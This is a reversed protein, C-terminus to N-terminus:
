FGEIGQNVAEIASEMTADGDAHGRSRPTSGASPSWTEMGDMGADTTPHGDRHCGGAGSWGSRRGAAKRRVSRTATRELVKESIQAGRRTTLLSCDKM